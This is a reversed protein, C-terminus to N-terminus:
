YINNVLLRIKHLIMRYKSINKCEAPLDAMHPVKFRTIFIKIEKIKQSGNRLYLLATKVRKPGIQVCDLKKSEHRIPEWVLSM